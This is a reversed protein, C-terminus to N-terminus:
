KNNNRKKKFCYQTDEFDAFSHYPKIAWNAHSYHRKCKTVKCKRNSCFTIDQNYYNDGM